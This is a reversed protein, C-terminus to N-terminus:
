KRRSNSWRGARSAAAADGDALARTFAARAEDWRGEAVASHGDALALAVEDTVGGNHRGPSTGSRWFVGTVVTVPTKRRASAVQPGLM